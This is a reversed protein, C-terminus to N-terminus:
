ILGTYRSFDSTSVIEKVDVIHPHKSLKLTHIERLSNIPFGNKENELKLKKLAVIEGSKRDRARYVVGYTGEEIRNLKEFHDVHRCPVIDRGQLISTSGVRSRKTPPESM